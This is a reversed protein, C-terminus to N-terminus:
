NFFFIAVNGMVMQEALRFTQLNISWLQGNLELKFHRSLVILWLLPKWKYAGNRLLVMCTGSFINWAAVDFYLCWCHWRSSKGYWLFIGLFHLLWLCVYYLSSIVTLCFLVARLAPMIIDPHFLADSFYRWYLRGTQNLTLVSKESGNRSAILVNKM